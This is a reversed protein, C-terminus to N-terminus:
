RLMLIVTSRTSSHYHWRWGQEVVFPMRSVIVNRVLDDIETYFATFYKHFYHLNLIQLSTLPIQHGESPYVRVYSTGQEFSFTSNTTLVEHTLHEDVIYELQM